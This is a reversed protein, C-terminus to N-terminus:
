LGPQECRVILLIQEVEGQHLTMTWPVALKEEVGEVATIVPFDPGHVGLDVTFQRPTISAGGVPWAISVGDPLAQRTAEIQPTEM